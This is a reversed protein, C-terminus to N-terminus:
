PTKDGKKFKDFKRHGEIGVPLAATKNENKIVAEPPITAEGSDVMDQAAENSVIEKEPVPKTGQGRKAM